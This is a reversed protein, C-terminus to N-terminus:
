SHGCKPAMVLSNLADDKIKSPLVTMGLHYFPNKLSEVDGILIVPIGAGIAIGYEVDRGGTTSPATVDVICVEAELLDQYDKLAIEFLPRQEETDTATVWSSTVEHGAEELIKKMRKMAAKRSIPASLYVRM